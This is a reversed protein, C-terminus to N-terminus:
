QPRGSVWLKPDARNWKSFPAVNSGASGIGGGGGGGRNQFVLVEAFAVWERVLGLM